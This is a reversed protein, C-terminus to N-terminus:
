SMNARDTWTENRYPQAMNKLEQPGRKSSLGQRLDALWTFSEAARAPGRKVTM